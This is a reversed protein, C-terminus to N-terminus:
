LMIGHINELEKRSYCTIQWLVITIFNNLNGYIRWKQDFFVLIHDYQYKFLTNRRSLNLNAHCLNFGWVERTIFKMRDIIM